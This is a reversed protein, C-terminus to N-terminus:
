QCLLGGALSRNVWECSSHASHVGDSLKLCFESIKTFNSFFIPLPKLSSCYSESNYKKTMLINVLIVFTWKSQSRKTPCILLNLGMEIVYHWFDVKQLVFLITKVHSLSM